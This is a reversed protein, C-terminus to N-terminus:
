LRVLLFLFFFSHRFTLTSNIKIREVTTPIGKSIKSYIVYIIHETNNYLKINYLFFYIYQFRSPLIHPKDKEKIEVDIRQQIKREHTKMKSKKQVPM